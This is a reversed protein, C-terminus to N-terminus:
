HDDLCTFVKCKLVQNVLHEFYDLENCNTIQTEYDGNGWHGICSVDRTYEQPDKLNGKTANLWIKLKYKFFCNDVINKNEKKFAIYQKFPVEELGKSLLLSRLQNFVEIIYDESKELHYQESYNKDNSSEAEEEEVLEKQTPQILRIKSLYLERKLEM